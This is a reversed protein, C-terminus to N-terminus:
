YLIISLFFDSILITICSLVVAETTAKGVGEAGNKAYYGKYCCIMSIILAFFLAKTLGCLLDGVTTFDLMNELFFTQNIHLMHVGVFYGGIIGIFIALATLLPIMIICAIFRPTVLHKIPNTALTKLADIQETVNMTGIEAAMSAGVRGAIMVGTLVPGLENTMSLGVLIGIATEMTIQHFQYYSQIALVMGTFGGTLAIVPLSLVGIQYMQKIVLKFRPPSYFLIRIAEFILLFMSGLHEIFQLLREGIRVFFTKM